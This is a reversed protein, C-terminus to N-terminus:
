IPCSCRTSSSAPASSSRSATPDPRLVSFARRAAPPPRSAPRIRIATTKGPENRGLFGYVSGREVHINVRDLAALTGYRKGLAHTEIALESM